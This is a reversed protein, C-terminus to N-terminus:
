LNLLFKLTDIGDAYDWLEPRQSQGPQIASNISESVSVICQVQDQIEKL